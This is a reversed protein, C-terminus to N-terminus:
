VRLTKLSSYHLNTYSLLSKFYLFKKISSGLLCFSCIQTIRVVRRCYVGLVVQILFRLLLPCIVYGLPTLIWPVSIFLVFPPFLGGQTPPWWFPEKVHTMYKWFSECVCVNISILHSESTVILGVCIKLDM